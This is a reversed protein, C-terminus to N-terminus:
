KKEASELLKQWWAKLKTMRTEPVNKERERERRRERASPMAKALTTTTEAAAAAKKPLMKREAVGWLSSAIFYLCLGAAMKYFFVGMVIMMVQMVKQQMEQEENQPPPALLKQQVVMLAVALIPLLNFYPGLYLMGGLNDPDTVWPMWQGIWMMMDPAALNDIWLFQALRFQVSEQLCYYLGMFIPMQLFLPMCGSAPHVKHKRYLEMTAQAQGAKDGKYKEQLKKVEPALLQMKQSMLAQKRSIPFMAGRVVITLLLISVGWNGFSLFHLFYLLHHMLKTCQILLYTWGIKSFFWGFPSDSHYDTLTNLQLQHTYLDVLAPAVKAGEPMQGLLMTKVPGHYLLFERAASQKGAIDIVDSNVRITMDDFYPQPSQGLRVWHVIAGNTKPERSFNVVCISGEKLKLTQLHEKARPLLRATILEDKAVAFVVDDEGITVLRAKVETSEQTPRASQLVSPKQKFDGFPQKPDVVIVAAFYQTMVGAYQIWSNSAPIREGEKNKSVAAADEVSRLLNDRDDVVGVVATRFSTPPTYWEGDIKLGHAGAMQFRFSAKDPSLNEIDLRVRLHYEKPNLRYTKTVKLHRQDPVLTWFSVKWGDGEKVAGGEVVNWLAEGMGFVPREANAEPFHFMRYSSVFPDDQVFELSKKAPRGLYDAAEFKQLTLNQVGAGRNTVAVLLYSEKDGLEFTAVDKAAPFPEDPKKDDKKPDAAKDDPKKTEPEKDSKKDDKKAADKKAADNAKALQGKKDDPKVPWLQQQLYTWGVVVAMALAFFAILNKNM